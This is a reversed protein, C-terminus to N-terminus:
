MYQYMYSVHKTAHRRRRCGGRPASAVIFVGFNGRLMEGKVWRRNGGHDAGQVVLARPTAARGSTVGHAVLPAATARHLHQTRHALAMATGLGTTPNLLLSVDQSKQQGSSELTEKSM